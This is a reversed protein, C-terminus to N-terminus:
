LTIDQGTSDHTIRQPERWWDLAYGNLYKEIINQVSTSYITTDHKSKDYASQPRNVRFAIYHLTRYQETIYDETTCQRPTMVGSDSGVAM